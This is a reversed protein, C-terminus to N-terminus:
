FSLNQRTDFPDVEHMAVGFVDDIYFTTQKEFREQPDMKAVVQKAPDGDHKDIVGFPPTNAAQLEEMQKQSFLVTKLNVDFENKFRDTGSLYGFLVLSMVLDDNCGSAAMFSGNREEFHCIEQITQDDVIMLKSNELLDKFHSCGQRKTKKTTKLGVKTADHWSEIYVNDYELDNVISHNVLAGLDNTEVCLYAM